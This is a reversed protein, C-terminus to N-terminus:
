TQPRHTDYDDYVDMEPDDWGAEGAVESQAAYTEEINFPEEDLMSRLREFLDGAILYYVANTDPDVVPVPKNGHEQLDDRQETTLKTTMLGIYWVKSM